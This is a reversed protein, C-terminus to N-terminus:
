GTFQEGEERGSDGVGLRGRVFVRSGEHRM